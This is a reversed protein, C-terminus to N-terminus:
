LDVRYLKGDLRNVFFLINEDSSLFLEQADYSGSIKSLDVVREKKGNGMNLKWFTDQSSIKGSAYDDPLTMSTDSFTPLAYYVTKGDKSWVCKSVFTPIDLNMYGGGDKNITGLSMKSGGKSDVLSILSEEGSSSWLYDAGFKGLLLTKIEGGTIGVTKLTTAEYATPSSWFAIRSSQPIQTLSINKSDTDALKTWNSGDPDSINISRKQSKSDYFKYIIKDGLNSWSVSDIGSPLEKSQNSNFDYLFFSANGSNKLYAVAKDKGPSWFVKSLNSLVGNSVVKRGNGDLSIQVANGGSKSYYKISKGDASLTPSIVSEDTIAYIAEATKVNESKSNESNASTKNELYNQAQDVTNKVSKSKFALNYIGFFFLSVLLLASSIIFIKKISSM